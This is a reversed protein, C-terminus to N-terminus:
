SKNFVENYISNYYDNMNQVIGKPMYQKKIACNNFMDNYFTVNSTDWESIDQNFQSNEFMNHMDIVNSVNWRSIDQNFPNMCDIGSFMYAMYKVNSVDWRSIDHNFVACRFMYSLNNVSSTNWRSIDNNFKSFGFMGIMNKVNSVDWYSIDGTFDSFFFMEYMNQVNSVNWESIDGNFKSYEFMQKMMWVKSVDWKSIDGNYESLKDFTGAFMRSMDIIESVNLWNLSDNPYNNSYFKVIIRLESQNNPKVVSTFDNLSKIESDSVTKTNIINNYIKYPDIISKNFINKGHNQNKNNFDMNAINFQEKIIKQIYKNM